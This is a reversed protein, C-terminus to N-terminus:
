PREKGTMAFLIARATFEEDVRSSIM